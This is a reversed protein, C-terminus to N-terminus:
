AHSRRALDSRGPFPRGAVLPAKLMAVFSPHDITGWPAPFSGTGKAAPFTFTGDNNALQILPLLTETNAKIADRAKPYGVPELRQGPSRREVLRANYM